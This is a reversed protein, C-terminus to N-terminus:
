VKENSVVEKDLAWLIMFRSKPEAHVVIETRHDGEHEPALRCFAGLSPGLIFAWAGCLEVAPPAESEIKKKNSM